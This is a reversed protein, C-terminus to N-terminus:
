KVKSGDINVVYKGNRGYSKKGPLKDGKFFGEAGVTWVIGREADYKLPAGHDFPDVPVAPLFEPVLADLSKPRRGAKRRYLEASVVVKGSSLMFEGCAVRGAINKFNPWSTAVMTRGVHNATLRGLPRSTTEAAEKEFDEWAGKDYDRALLEKAKAYLVVCLARTRNPHYSYRRWVGCKGEGGFGDEFIQLGPTLWYLFENDVTRRIGARLAATDTALMSALLQRLEVDSAKGSAVIRSALSLAVGCTDDAVLLCVFSEADSRITRGLNLLDGAVEVAAAIEGREIHCNGKIDYLKLMKLFDGVLPILCEEGRPGHWKTCKAACRLLAFADANEALMVDIESSSLKKLDGSGVWRKVANTAAVLCCWANDEDAPVTSTVTFASVDPPDTDILCCGDCLAGLLAVMAIAFFIKRTNM